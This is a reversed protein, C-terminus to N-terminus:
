RGAFFHKEQGAAARWRFFCLFCEGFCHTRPSSSRSERTGLISQSQGRRLRELAGVKNNKNKGGKENKLFLCVTKKSPTPRLSVSLHVAAVFSRTAHMIIRGRPRRSCPM